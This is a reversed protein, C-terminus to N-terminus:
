FEIGETDFDFGLRDAVQEFLVIVEKVTVKRDVSMDDLWEAVLRIVELYEINEEVMDIDLSDILDAAIDIIEPVSIKGDDALADTINSAITGVSGIISWFSIKNSM